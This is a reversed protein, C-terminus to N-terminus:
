SLEEGPRGTHILLSSTRSGTLVTGLIHSSYFSFWAVGVLYPTHHFETAWLPKQFVRRDEAAGDM